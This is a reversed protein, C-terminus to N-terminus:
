HVVQYGSRSSRPINKEWVKKYLKERETDCLESETKINLFMSKLSVNDNIENKGKEIFENKRDLLKERSCAIRIHKMLVLAFDYYKKSILSMKGKNILTDSPSFCKIMYDNDDVVDGIFVRMEELYLLKKELLQFTNNDPGIIDQKQKLKEILSFVAFMFFGCIERNEDKRTLIGVHCLNEDENLNEPLYEAQLQKM